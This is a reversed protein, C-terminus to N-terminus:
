SEKPVFEPYPRRGEGGRALVKELTTVEFTESILCTHKPPSDLDDYYRTVVLGHEPWGAETKVLPANSRLLSLVEYVEERRLRLHGCQAHHIWLTMTCHEGDGEIRCSTFPQQLRYYETGM